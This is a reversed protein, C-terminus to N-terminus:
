APAPAAHCKDCAVAAHKGELSWGTRDHAFREPEGEAWAVIEFDAGGHAPHWGSCAGNAERAHLGRKEERLRAIEGHCALCQGDVSKENLGHCQLCKTLGELDAHARSLPGPSIQAEAGGVGLLFAVCAAAIRRMAASGRSM